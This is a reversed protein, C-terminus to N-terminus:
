FCLYHQSIHNKNKTSTCGFEGLTAVILTVYDDSSLPRCGCGSVAAAEHVDIVNGPSSLVYSFFSVFYIICSDALFNIKCNSFFYFFQCFRFLIKFM